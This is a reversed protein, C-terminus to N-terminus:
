EGGDTGGTMLDAWRGLLTTLFRVSLRAYATADAPIAGRRDHLNWGVLVEDAFTTWAARLTTSEDPGPEAAAFAVMARAISATVGVPVDTLVTIEAGAYPDGLEVTQPDGTLLYM